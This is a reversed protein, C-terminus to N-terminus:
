ALLVYIVIEREWWLRDTYLFNTTKLIQCNSKSNFHFELFFIKATFSVFSQEDDVSITQWMQLSVKIKFFNRNSVFFNSKTILQNMEFVNLLRVWEYHQLDTFHNLTSNCMPQCICDYVKYICKDGFRTKHICVKDSSMMFM